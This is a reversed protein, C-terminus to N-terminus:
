NGFKVSLQGGAPATGTTFELDVPDYYNLYAYGIKEDDSDVWNKLVTAIVDTAKLYPTSEGAIVKALNIANLSVERWKSIGSDDEVFYFSICDFWRSGGPKWNTIACVNVDNWKNDDRSNMQIYMEHIEYTKDGSVGLVKVKFEPAGRLWSEIKSVDSYKVKKIYVASNKSVDRYPTYIFDYKPISAGIGTVREIKYERKQGPKIDTDFYEDVPMQLRKVFDYNTAGSGINRKYINVYGGYDSTGFVWRLRVLNLAEQEVTFSSAAAPRPPTNITVYNSESSTQYNNYAVVYYRYIVNHTVNQDAYERNRYGVISSVLSYNAETGVKKYVKYGITNSLNTESPMNWNLYIGFETVQATLGVPTPPTVDDTAIDKIYRESLGVVVVANRPPNVADIMTLSDRWMAPVHKTSDDRFEGPIFAVPPIYAPDALDEAAVPVSVQLAPYKATLSGVISAAPSATRLEAFRAKVSTESEDKTKESVTQFADDLLDRVTFGSASRLNASRLQAEGADQKVQMDVINKILVDFDGDFKKLAEKHLLSKFDKNTNVAENIAAAFDRMDLNFENKVYLDEPNISDSLNNDIVNENTDCSM